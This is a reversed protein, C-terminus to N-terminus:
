ARHLVSARWAARRDLDIVSSFSLGSTLRRAPITLVASSPDSRDPSANVRPLPVVLLRAVFAGIVAPASVQRASDADM